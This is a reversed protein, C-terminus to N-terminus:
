RGERRRGESKSAGQRGAEGRRLDKATGHLKGKQKEKRREMTDKNKKRKGERTKRRYM